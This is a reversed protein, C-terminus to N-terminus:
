ACVLRSPPPTNVKVPGSNHSPCDRRRFALKRAQPGGVPAAPMRLGPLHVPTLLLVSRAQALHNFRRRLKRLLARFAVPTDSLHKRRRTETTQILTTTHLSEITDLDM